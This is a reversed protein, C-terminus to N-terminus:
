RELTECFSCRFLSTALGLVGDSGYPMGELNHADPMARNVIQDWAAQVLRAKASRAHELFVPLLSLVRDQTMQIYGEDEEILARAAPTRLVEHPVPYPGDDVSVTPLYEQWILTLEAERHKIREVRALAETRAVEIQIM